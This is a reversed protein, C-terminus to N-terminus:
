YGDGGQGAAPLCESARLRQQIRAQLGLRQLGASALIIADYEGRDLKGLRTGVNGRLAVRQLDPRLAAVQCQRRLSSTGVRLGPQLGALGSSDGGAAHDGTASTIGAHGGSAVEAVAPTSAEGDTGCSAHGGGARVVLADLPDARECIVALGLGPPFEMPVDKMSHVALEAREDLLAQELEKVFLGKGGVQALPVELLQDGRTGLPVLEVELGPHARLLGARVYEAQWLALPSKRTAIRLPRQNMALKPM